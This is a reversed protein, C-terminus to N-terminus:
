PQATPTPTVEPTPTLTPTPVPTIVVEVTTPNIGQEQVQDPLIDVLPVVQWTGEGLDTLDVVVRVNEPTLEELVPLPGFLIVDVTEPSIQVQYEPSLGIVEVPLNVILNNEIAAISVQVLVTERGVLSVGEPLNLDVNVVVDDSAGTLDIPETEVFGPLQNIREPDPSFVTVTPPSVTISTLRYGTAWQGTTKVQVALERYRGLQIIPVTVRVREPILTIRGPDFGEEGIVQLTLTRVVAETAGTLNLQARVEKVLQVQSAPGSVSAQAADLLPDGAEFGLAPEGRITLSIPFTETVLPELAVTVEHPTYSDIRYPSFPIQPLTVPVTHTGPGLGTLDLRAKDLGQEQLQECISRPAFIEIGVQTPAESMRELGPDEGVIELPIVRPSPCQQNPDAAITSSVWVTLALLFALILTGLNKGLWRFADTIM